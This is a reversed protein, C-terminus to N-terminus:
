GRATPRSSAACSGDRPGGAHQLPRRLTRGLRARLHADAVASRRSAAPLVRAASAGQGDSRASPRGARGAARGPRRARRCSGPRAPRAPRAPPGAGAGAGATGRLRVAQVPLRRGRRRPGRVRDSVADRATLFLVPAAGGAQRYRKCCALRGTGPLWWDLLVLDWTGNGCATGATSGDAAHEVTFGEERLGRILFDAIEAEDEVVLIRYSM